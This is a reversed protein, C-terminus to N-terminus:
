ALISYTVNDFSSVGIIYTGNMSQINHKMFYEHHLDIELTEQGRWTSKIDCDEILPLRDAGINVFLDPDGQGYPSVTIIISCDQCTSTYIYYHYEEAELTAEFRRNNVM